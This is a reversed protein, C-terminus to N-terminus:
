LSGSPAPKFWRLAFLVVFGFCVIPISLSASYMGSLMMQEMFASILGGGIMGMVLFASAIKQETKTNSLGMGFITPFMISMFFSIAVLCWLTVMPNTFLTITSLLLAAIAFFGLVKQPSLIKILLTGIFRGAMFSVFAYILFNQTPPENINTHDVIMPIILWIGVQAGMYFFQAIVAYKLHDEKTLLDWPIKHKKSSLDHKKPLVTNFDILFILLAWIIVVIGMVIYPLLITHAEIIQLLAKKEYSFSVVSTSLTAVHPRLFTLYIFTSILLGIPNFSQALNLRIIGSKSNGMAYVLPNAATELFSLGCAIIFIASFFLLYLKFDTAPYFLFGGIGFLLLGIMVGAKYDFKRMLFAAPLATAFYGFYFTIPILRIQSSSLEFINGFQAMLVTNMNGALGWLLFLGFILFYIRRNYNMIM